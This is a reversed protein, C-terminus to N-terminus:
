RGTPWRKFAWYLAYGIAIVIAASMSSTAAESKDRVLAILSALVCVGILFAAWGKVTLTVDGPLQGTRKIWEGDLGGTGLDKDDGM